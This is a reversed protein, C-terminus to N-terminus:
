EVIAHLLMGHLFTYGFMAMYRIQDTYLLLFEAVGSDIMWATSDLKEPEPQQRRPRM